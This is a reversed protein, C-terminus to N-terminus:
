RRTAVAIDLKGLRSGTRSITTLTLGLLDKRGAFRMTKSDGEFLSGELELLSMRTGDVFTAVAEIIRITGRMSTLRIAKVDNERISVRESTEFRDVFLTDVSEFNLVGHDSGHDNGWDDDADPWSSDTKESLLLMVKKVRINGKLHIQWVGEADFGPRNFDIAQYSSPHISDFMAPSGAVPYDFTVEQGVQLRAQGKGMKSKAVLRVKELTYRALKLEPFQAQIEKKLMLTNEGQFVQDRFELDLRQDMAQASFGILAAFLAVAAHRCERYM